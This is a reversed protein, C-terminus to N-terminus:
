RGNSLTAIDFHGAKIIAGESDLVDPNWTFQVRNTQGEPPFEMEVQTLVVGVSEAVDQWDVLANAATKLLDLQDSPLSM